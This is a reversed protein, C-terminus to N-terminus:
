VSAFWCCSECHCYAYCGWLWLCVSVFYNPLSWKMFMHKWFCLCFVNINNIHGSFYSICIRIFSMFFLHMYVYLKMYLIQFVYLKNWTTTLKILFFLTFYLSLSCLYFLTIQYLSTVSIWQTIHYKLMFRLSIFNLWISTEPFFTVPLFILSYLPGTKQVHNTIPPFLM